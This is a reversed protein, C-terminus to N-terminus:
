TRLRRQRRAHISHCRWLCHVAIYGIGALLTALAPLGLLLPEGMGAAWDFLKEAWERLYDPTFAPPPTFPKTTAQGVISWLRLGLAYALLYLPIITLPNSYLTVLLALPLNARFAMAGLAAGLMQLPGPILGCFLGIAVAGAASHRNLCWLRPHRLAGAFPALWRNDAVATPSPLYKRLFKRM